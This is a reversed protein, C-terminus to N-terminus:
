EAERAEGVIDGLEVHRIHSRQVQDTSSSWSEKCPLAHPQLVIGARAAVAPPYTILAGDFRSAAARRPRGFNERAAWTCYLLRTEGRAYYKFDKPSLLV